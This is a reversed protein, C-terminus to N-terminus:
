MVFRRRGAPRMTKAVHWTSCVAHVQSSFNVTTTWCAHIVYIYGHIDYYGTFIVGIIWLFPVIDMWLLCACSLLRVHIYIDMHEIGDDHDHGEIKM